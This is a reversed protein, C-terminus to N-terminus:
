MTKCIAQKHEINKQSYNVRSWIIWMFGDWLWQIFVIHIIYLVYIYRSKM